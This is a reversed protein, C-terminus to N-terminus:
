EVPTVTNGNITFVHTTGDGCDVTFTNGGSGSGEAGAGGIIVWHSAAKKLLVNQGALWSDGNLPYAYNAGSTGTQPLTTTVGNPVIVGKWPFDDYIQDFAYALYGEEDTFGEGAPDLSFGSGGSGSGEARIQGYIFVQPSPVETPMTGGQVHEGQYRSISDLQEDTRRMWQRQPPSADYPIRTPTRPTFM